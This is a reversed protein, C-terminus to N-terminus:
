LSAGTRSWHEVLAGGPGGINGLGLVLSEEPILARLRSMIRVPDREVLGVAPIRTLQGARALRALARTHDGIFVLREFSDFFGDQIASLWQRTRDGRDARLNLLGVTKAPLSPYRRRLAALVLASSEPENAAFASALFLGASGEAVPARWVRLSGFDPRAKALGSAIVSPGIGLSAAAAEVLRLNDPFEGAAALVTV